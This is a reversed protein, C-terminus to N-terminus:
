RRVALLPATTRGVRIQRLGVRRVRVRLRARGHANTRTHRSGFRVRVGRVPRGARTVRIHLTTRRGVRVRRPRVTVRLRRVKPAARRPDRVLLEVNRDGSDGAAALNAQPDNYGFTRAISALDDSPLGAAATGSPPATAPAADDLLASMLSLTGDHNDMLDILRDQHPWDAEASTRVVWFGGRPGKQFAVDNIHSHGAIWAIVHPHALLLADLDAGLHIPRSDRPDADCGPNLPDTPDDCPGALEDPLNTTLSVPAHHSVILVLEDAAEAADLVHSLWRFQPDDVNGDAGPGAIGATAITDLVVFRVGPVPSFTYYSAAGASAKAEAPDVFAFGHADSQGGGAFLARYQAKTVEARAPDPPVIIGNGDSPTLLQTLADAPAGADIAPARIPKVCGTAVANTAANAAENGQVLGDHNGLAVYSPVDLGAAEFPQQARDM